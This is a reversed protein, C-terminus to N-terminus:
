GDLAPLDHGGLSFRLGALLEDNTPKRGQAQEFEVVIEDIARDLVDAPGDGWLLGTDELALSAGGETAQWWGMVIM